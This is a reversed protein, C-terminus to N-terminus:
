GSGAPEPQTAAGVGRKLKGGTETGVGQTGRQDAPGEFLVLVHQRDAFGADLQRCGCRRLEGPRGGRGDPMGAGNFAGGGPQAAHAADWERSVAQYSPM